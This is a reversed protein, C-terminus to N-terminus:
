GEGQSVTSQPSAYYEQQAPMAGGLGYGDGGGGDGKGSMGGARTQRTFQQVDLTLQQLQLTLRANADLLTHTDDGRLGEEDHGNGGSHLYSDKRGTALARAEHVLQESGKLVQELRAVVQAWEEGGEVRGGGGGRGVAAASLQAVTASIQDDREAVKAREESPTPNLHPTPNPNLKEESIVNHQHLSGVM